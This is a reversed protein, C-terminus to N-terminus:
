PTPRQNSDLEPRKLPLANYSDGPGGDLTDPGVGGLLYDDGSGARVVDGAEGDAFREDDGGRGIIVDRGPGGLLMDHRRGSPAALVVDPGGRSSYVEVTRFTLEFTFLRRSNSSIRRL